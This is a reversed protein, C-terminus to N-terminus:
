GVELHPSVGACFDPHEYVDKERLSRLGIQAKVNKFGYNGLQKRFSDWTMSDMGLDQKQVESALRTRQMLVDFVYLVFSPLALTLLCLVSIATPVHM